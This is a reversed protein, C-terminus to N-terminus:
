SETVGRVINQEDPLLGYATMEAKLRDLTAPTVEVLPLRYHGANLGMLNLAAKVPMPNVEAFLARVLPLARLQLDLAGSRDGELYKTVLDHVQRPAINALVSIVGLGGLSLVPIINNDDGSYIEFGGPGCLEAIEAVQAINGSSEKIGVINPIKSLQYVTQAQMNLGTRSPVNYLIVPLDAAAAMVTFHRVLGAPSTKNYYPTVVLLADAGREQAGRCLHVGHDTYNSGTGAIVPVRKSAASVACRIVDLQEEDTLTAAEGTSGCSIIADAGNTILFDILNEYADFNVAGDEKFPTVVAVGAGKFTSM